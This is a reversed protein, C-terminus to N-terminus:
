RIFMIRKNFVKGNTVLRVIYIGPKVPGAPWEFTYLKGAEGEGEFLSMVERGQGNFVKLSVQKPKPLKFQLKIIESFPNPHASLINEEKQQAGDEKPIIADNVGSMSVETGTIGVKVIWYDNSGWSAETKDGSIKSDSTGALLYGGDPTAIVSSLDDQDSGGFRKDWQKAGTSSVKVIWYDLEGRNNETKEGSIGSASRGALL